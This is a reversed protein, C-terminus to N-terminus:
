ESDAPSEAADFGSRDQVAIIATNVWEGGDKRPSRTVTVNVIYGVAGALVEFAELMGGVKTGAVVSADRKLAGLAGDNFCRYAGIEFETGHLSAPDSEVGQVVGYLRLFNYKGKDTDKVGAKYRSIVVTYTGDPPMPMGFAEAQSYEEQQAACIGVFDPDFKVKSKESM